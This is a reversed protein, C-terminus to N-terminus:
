GRGVPPDVVYDPTFTIAFTAWVAVPRGNQIAPTFSCTVANEIAAHDLERSGSSKGILAGLVEGQKGILVKVWVIAKSGWEPHWIPYELSDCGLMRPYYEVPVFEDPGPLYDDKHGTDNDAVPNTGEGECLSMFSSTFLLMAILSLRLM